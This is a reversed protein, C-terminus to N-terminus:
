VCKRGFVAKTSCRFCLSAPSISNFSMHSCSYKRHIATSRCQSVCESVNVRGSQRQAPVARGITKTRGASDLRRGNDDSCRRRGSCRGGNLPLMHLNLVQETSMIKSVFVTFHTLRAGARNVCPVTQAKTQVFLSALKVIPHPTVASSLPQETSRSFCLQENSM